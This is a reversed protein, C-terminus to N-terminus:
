AGQAVPELMVVLVAVAVAMVGVLEMAEQAVLVAAVV